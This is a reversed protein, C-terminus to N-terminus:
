SRGINKSDGRLNSATQRQLSDDPVPNNNSGQGPNNPVDVSMGNVGGKKFFNQPQQSGPNQNQGLNKNFQNQGLNKNFEGKQKEFLNMSEKSLAATTAAQSFYNGVGATAEKAYSNASDTFMSAISGSARLILYGSILPISALAVGLITYYTTYHMSPNVYRLSLLALSLDADLPNKLESPNAIESSSLPPEGYLMINFLLQELLMVMAFGIDWSKAWMWFLFWQIFAIYKGPFLLMLAFFPYLISLFFLIVGQYYPLQMAYVMVKYEEVYKTRDLKNREVRSFPQNAGSFALVQQNQKVRQDAIFHGPANSDQINN